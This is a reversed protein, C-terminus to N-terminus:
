RYKVVKENKGPYYEPQSLFDYLMNTSCFDFYIKPIEVKDEVVTIKSAAGVNLHTPNKIMRQHRATESCSYKELKYCKLVQLKSELFQKGKNEGLITISDGQLSSQAPTLM